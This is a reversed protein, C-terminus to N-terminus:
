SMRSLNGLECALFITDTIAYKAELSFDLIYEYLKSALKIPIAPSAVSRLWRIYESVLVEISNSAKLSVVMSDIVDEFISADGKAAALFPSDVEEQVVVVVVVGVLLSESFIFLLRWNRGAGGAKCTSRVEWAICAYGRNQMIKSIIDVSGNQAAL